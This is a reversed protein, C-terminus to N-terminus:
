AHTDDGAPSLLWRELEHFISRAHEARLEQPITYHVRLQLRRTKLVLLLQSGHADRWACLPLNPNQPQAIWRKNLTQSLRELALTDPLSIRWLLDHICAREPSLRLGEPESSPTPNSM